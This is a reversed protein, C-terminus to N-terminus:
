IKFSSFFSRKSTGFLWELSEGGATDDPRCSNGYPKRGRAFRFPKHPNQQLDGALLHTPAQPAAAPLLLRLQRAGAPTFSSAPLPRPHFFARM